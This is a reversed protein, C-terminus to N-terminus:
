TEKERQKLSAIATNSLKKARIIAAWLDTGINEAWDSINEMENCLYQLDGIVKNGILVEHMKIDSRLDLSLKGSVQPLGHLMQADILGETKPEKEVKEILVLYDSVKKRIDRLITRKREKEREQREERRIKRQSYIAVIYSMIGGVIAPVVVM